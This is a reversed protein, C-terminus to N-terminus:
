SSKALDVAPFQKLLELKVIALCMNCMRYEIIEESPDNDRFRLFRLHNRDGEDVSFSYFMQEIDGVVAVVAEEDKRFRM